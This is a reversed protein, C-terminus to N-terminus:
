KRCDSTSTTTILSVEELLRHAGRSRQHITQNSQNGHSGIELVDLIEADLKCISAISSCASRAATSTSRWDIPSSAGDRGGDCRRTRPAGGVYGFAIADLAPVRRATAPLERLQMKLHKGGVIRADAVKFEGDFVPEPFGQGWPGAGRLM